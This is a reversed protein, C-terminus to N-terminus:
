FNLLLLLLLYFLIITLEEHSLKFHYKEIEFKTIMGYCILLIVIGIQAIREIKMQIKNSNIIKKMMIIKSNKM